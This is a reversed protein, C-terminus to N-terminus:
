LLTKGLASVDQAALYKFDALTGYNAYIVPATVDGSPSGCSFAPLIRPDNQFADSGDETADVHERTPGSMLKKGQGDFAEILIKSPKNLLVRYPVIETDLGADKFKGAVYLATKYDEPSSAWHPEATLTKLHRGALVPDPVALFIADWKAQSSFDRYGLASKPAAVPLPSQALATLPLLCALSLLRNM